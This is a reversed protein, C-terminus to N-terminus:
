GKQMAEGVAQLAAGHIRITQRWCYSMEVAIKEFTKGNIYREYLVTRQTEDDVADIAKTVARDAAELHEIRDSVRNEMDIIRAVAAGLKDDEHAGGGSGGYVPTIREAMARLETLHDLAAKAEHLASRYQQLFKKVDQPNVGEM